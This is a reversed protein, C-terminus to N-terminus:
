AKSAVDQYLETLQHATKEIGFDLCAIKAASSIHRALDKNEILEVISAALSHADAPPVFLVTERDIGIENMGGVSTAVIPNGAAMAEVLSLGFGESLSPIVQIDLLALLEPVDNRFGLFEVAHSIELEECLGELRTRLEGEGVILLKFDSHKALVEPVARILYENGKESRLRTVTGALFTSDSVGIENRTISRSDTSVSTYKAIDVGNQIVHIKGQDISRGKVMFDKVSNSIAVAHGTLKSLLKDAVYQHPQVKLVAHEHVINAVGTLRSAVRGYNAAGYGHLHVIDYQGKKILRVLGVINIPSMAGHGLKIVTVNRAVLYNEAPDPSRLTCVDTSFQSADIQRVLEALLLTCSSPNHGDMSLKDIVHLVRIPKKM